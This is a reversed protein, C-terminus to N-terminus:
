WGRQSVALPPTATSPVLIHELLRPFLSGILVCLGRPRPCLWVVLLGLRLRLWLPLVSRRCLSYGELYILPTDFSDTRCCGALLRIGVRVRSLPRHPSPTDNRSARVQDSGEPVETSCALPQRLNSPQARRLRSARLQLGVLDGLDLPLRHQELLQLRQFSSCSDAADSAAAAAASSPGTAATAWACPSPSPALCPFPTTAPVSAM